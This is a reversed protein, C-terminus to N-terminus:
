GAIDLVIRGEVEGKKMQELVDNIDELKAIHITAKVKGEVAFGIAEQM